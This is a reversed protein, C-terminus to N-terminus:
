VNQARIALVAQNRLTKLLSLEEPGFALKGPEDNDGYLLAVPKKNLLIPFLALSRGSVATRYWNPIHARIKPNDVDEIYIDAGQALAAHFIDKAPALPVSFGRRVLEDSGQGLGLRSKLSNSAPDRILLLVRTFGAGRYMTEVVIRFLDNLQFKGVLANTIDQIGATLVAKRKTVEVGVPRNAEEETPERDNLATEALTAAIEDIEQTETFQRSWSVAREFFPSATTKLDLAAADRSIAAITKGVAAIISGQKIGLVPRFREEVALLEGARASEPAFRIADTIGASLGAVLRLREGDSAPMHLEDETVARISQLVADPFHWSRAVGMGLDDLPTGLIQMAAAAEDMGSHRLKQIEVFEEHFYFATLLRGLKHFMACIFAEEGDRLGVTGALSRGMVATFYAALIEDRLDAAQSKNQLHDFLMLSIAISRVQDFGMVMIARSVTSIGRGFQGYHATNVLKLLKNTMAFDKLITGSLAAVGEKDSRVAKSVTSITGSLAPFDSKVRMRRLLFELTGSTAESKDIPAPAPKLYVELAEAMAQASEYRDDPNKALARMVIANLREDVSDTRTSPARFKGTSVKHLLEWVTRGTVAPEGVLMEYLMMGVSFVDSRPSFSRNAIYEPATYAPTGHFGEDSADKTSILAAIGFDMIRAVGEETLMVNGPKLDRHVVGKQHAFEVGKLVQIAIECARIPAIATEERLVAALTHGPVFEFVLYPQSGDQGADFLTVINPHVLRSMMVAEDLLTQMGDRADAGAVEITKIAVDRRLQPDHALWVSGQTGRGLPRLVEFRGIRQATQPLSAM